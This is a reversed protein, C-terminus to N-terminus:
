KSAHYIESRRTSQRDKEAEAELQRAKEAEVAAQAHLMEIRSADREPSRQRAAMRQEVMAEVRLQSALTLRWVVAVAVVAFPVTFALIDATGVLEVVVPIWDRTTM